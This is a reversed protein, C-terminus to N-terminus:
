LRIAFVVVPPSRRWLEARRIVSSSALAGGPATSGQTVWRSLGYRSPPSGESLGWEQHPDLISVRCYKRARPTEGRSEGFSREDTLETAGATTTKTKTTSPTAPARFFRVVCFLKSALEIGQKESCAHSGLWGAGAPQVCKGRHSAAYEPLQM